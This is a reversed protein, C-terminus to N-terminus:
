KYPPSSSPYRDMTTSGLCLRRRLKDVPFTEKSLLPLFGRQTPVKANLAKTRKEVFLVIITRLLQRNERGIASFM